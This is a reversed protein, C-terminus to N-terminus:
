AACVGGMTLREDVVCWVSSGGRVCGGMGLRASSGREIRDDDTM